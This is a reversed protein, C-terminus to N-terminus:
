LYYKSVCFGTLVHYEDVAILRHGIFELFIMYVNFVGELAGDVTISERDHPNENMKLPNM